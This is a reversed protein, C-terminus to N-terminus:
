FIQKKVKLIMNKYTSSNTGRILQTGVPKNEAPFPMQFFITVIYNVLYYANKIEIKRM